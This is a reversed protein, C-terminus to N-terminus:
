ILVCSLSMYKSTYSLLTLICEKETHGPSYAYKACIKRQSKPEWSFTTQSYMSKRHAVSWMCIERCMKRQIDNEPFLHM